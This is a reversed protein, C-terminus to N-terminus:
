LRASSAIFWEPKPQQVTRDGFGPQPTPHLHGTTLAGSKTRYIPLSRFQNTILANRGPKSDTSGLTLPCHMFTLAGCPVYADRDPWNSLPTTVPILTWYFYRRTRPHNRTHYLKVLSFWVLDQTVWPDDQTVWPDNQNVWTDDQAPTSFGASQRAALM